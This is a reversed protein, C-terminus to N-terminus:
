SFEVKGDKSCGLVAVLSFVKMEVVCDDLEDASNNVMASALSLALSLM